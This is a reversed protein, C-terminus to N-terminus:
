LFIVEFLNPAKLPKMSDCARKTPPSYLSYLSFIPTKQQSVEGFPSFYRVEAVKMSKETVEAM